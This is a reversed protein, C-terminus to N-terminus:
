NEPLFKRVQGPKSRDTGPNQGPANAMGPPFLGYDFSGAVLVATEKPKRRTVEVFHAAGGDGLAFADQIFPDRGYGRKGAGSL